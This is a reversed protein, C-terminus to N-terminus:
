GYDALAFNPRSIIPLDCAMIMFPFDIIPCLAVLVFLSSFSDDVVYASQL